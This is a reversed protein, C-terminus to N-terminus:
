ISATASYLSIRSVEQPGTGPGAMSSAEMGWSATRKWLKRCYRHLPWFADVIPVGKAATLRPDVCSVTRGQIIKCTLERHSYDCIYVQKCFKAPAITGAVSGELSNGAAMLHLGTKRAIIDCVEHWCCGLDSRPKTLPPTYRWSLQLRVCLIPTRASPM